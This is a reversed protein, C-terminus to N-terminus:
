TKGEGKEATKILNRFVSEARDADRSEGGKGKVVCRGNCSLQVEM